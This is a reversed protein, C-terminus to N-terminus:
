PQPETDDTDDTTKETFPTNIDLIEKILSHLVNEFDQLVQNDVLYDHTAGAVKCTMFKDKLNKFSIVGTMCQFDQIQQEKQHMFAYCLVQFAKSWKYDETLNQMDKVHMNEPSVKGTKYDIIRLQGNLTDMRDVKGKLFVPVSLAPISLPIKISKELAIVVLDAGNEITERDLELLKTIYKQAVKYIIVNKGTQLDGGPYHKDFAAKLIETVQASLEVLIAVTLPKGITPKYLAELTDHVINGLTRDAITEEAVWAEEIGLVAQKYFQMPDYIYSSLFSPSFGSQAKEMLFDMMNENKAISKNLLQLDPTQNTLIKKSVKHPSDLELQSLYRSPEGLGFNEEDTNYLLYVNQAKSILRYFHYAFVADSDRQDPLKFATRVEFPLMSVKKSKKPLMGENASLVIVTEFDLNRSELLGMIQLGDTPEGRFSIRDANVYEKFFRLQTKAHNLFTYQRSYHDIENFIEFFRFLQEGLLADKTLLDGYDNKFIQVLLKMEEILTCAASTTLIANLMSINSFSEELNRLDDPTFYTKPTHTIAALFEKIRADKLLSFLLTCIETLQQIHLSKDTERLAIKFEFVAKFFHALACTKLPIGMTINAVNFAKPLADLVPQLLNEDALVVAVESLPYQNKALTDLIHGLQKAQGIQGNVGIFSIDKATEFHNSIWGSTSTSLVKHRLINRPHHGAEHYTNELFFTDFDWCISVKESALMKSLCFEESAKLASFGAFVFSQNSKEIFDDINQTAIRSILGAYAKKQDILKHQLKHYYIGFLNWHSLYDNAIRQAPQVQKAWHDIAKIQQLYSFVQSADALQADIEEFDSLLTSAWTIFNEFSEQSESPTNELYVEYFLCHLATQPILDIQAVAEFFEQISLIKPVFGPKRSLNIYTDRFIVGSRKNPWIVWIQRGDEYKEIVKRSVKHIFKETPHQTIM